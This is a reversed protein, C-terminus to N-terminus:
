PLLCQMPRNSRPEWYTELLLKALSLFFSQVARSRKWREGAEAVPWVGVHLDLGGWVVVRTGNSKDCEASCKWLPKNICDRMGSLLPYGRPIRLVWGRNM